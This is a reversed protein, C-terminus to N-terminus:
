PRGRGSRGPGSAVSRSCPISEAHAGARLSLAPMDPRVCNVSRACAVKSMPAPYLPSSESAAATGAALRVPYENCSAHRTITASGHPAGNEVIRRKHKRSVMRGPSRGLHDRDRHRRAIWIRSRARPRGTSCLNNARNALRRNCASNPRPMHTTCM